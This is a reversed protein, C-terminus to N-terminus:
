KCCVRKANSWWMRPFAQPATPWRAGLHWRKRSGITVFTYGLVQIPIIPFDQAPQNCAFTSFMSLADLVSCTVAHCVICGFDRRLFVYFFQSLNRASKSREDLENSISRLGPIGKCLM